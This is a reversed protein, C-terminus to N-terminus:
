RAANPGDLDVRSPRPSAAPSRSSRARRSARAARPRTPAGATGASARRHRPAGVAVDGVFRHLFEAASSPPPRATRSPTSSTPGAARSADRRVARAAADALLLEGAREGAAAVSEAWGDDNAFLGAYVSGLAVVIGGTLTAVDISGSPARSARTSSATACCSGARPTPTSSRSRRARLPRPRHRRAQGRRGGPMNETAGIVAIVRVPLKLRAIAATAELVAAGGGMDSKMTSMKMAPKISIGGSDFTVAKGVLGLM